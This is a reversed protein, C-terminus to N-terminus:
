ATLKILKNIQYKIRKLANEVDKVEIKLDDAIKVNSKEGDLRADFVFFTNEDKEFASYCKDLLMEFNLAFNEEAFDQRLTERVLDIFREERFVGEWDYLEDSNDIPENAEKRKRENRIYSLISFRLFQSFDTIKDRYWKRKLNITKEIVTNVVDDAAIGRFSDSHFYLRIHKLTFYILRKHFGPINKYANELAEIVEGKSAFNIEAETICNGPIDNIDGGTDEAKGSM